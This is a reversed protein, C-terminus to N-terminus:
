VPLDSIPEPALDLGTLQFGAHLDGGFILEHLLIAGGTVGDAGITM